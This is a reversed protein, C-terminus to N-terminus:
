DLTYDATAYREPLGLRLILGYFFSLASISTSYFFGFLSSGYGNSNGLSLLTHGINYLTTTESYM